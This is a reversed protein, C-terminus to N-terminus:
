IVQWEGNSQECATQQDHVDGDPHGVVSVHYDICTLGNEHIYPESEEISYDFDKVDAYTMGGGGFLAGMGAGLANSAGGVIGAGALGHLAGSAGAANLMPAGTRMRMASAQGAAAADANAGGGAAAGAGRNLLQGGVASTMYEGFGVGEAAPSGACGALAGSLALSVVIAGFANRQIAM